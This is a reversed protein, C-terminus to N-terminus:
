EPLFLKKNGIEVNYKDYEKTTEDVMGFPCLCNHERNLKRYSKEEAPYEAYVWGNAIHFRNWRLHELAQYEAPSREEKGEFAYYNLAYRRVCRNSQKKFPTEKRWADKHKTDGKVKTLYLGGTSSLEDYLAKRGEADAASIEGYVFSFLSDDEDDILDNYAWINKNCGFPIVRLVTGLRRKDAKSWSLRDVNKKDRIHVFITKMTEARETKSLLDHKFEDILLNAMSLDREDDGLSVVYARYQVKDSDINMGDDMARMFCKKFCSVEHFHVIPFGMENYIREPTLRYKAVAGGDYLSHLASSRQARGWEVLAENSRPEDAEATKCLFFPHAYAFEGSRSLADEDYVDAIFQTAGGDEKVNASHIFLEKLAYQGVKGFGMVAVRYVDTGKDLGMCKEYLPYNEAFDREGRFFDKQTATLLDDAMLKAENVFHLQLYKKYEEEFAEVKGQKKAFRGVVDDLKRQYHEYDTDNRTLLYYNIVTPIGTGDKGCYDRLVARIDDFVIDSNHNEMGRLEEDERTAFIHVRKHYDRHTRDLADQKAFYEKSCRLKKVLSVEQSKKLKKQYSWYYFGHDVITRYVDTSKDLPELEDGTFIVAYKGEKRKREERHIEMAILLSAESLDTFIYYRDFKRMFGALKFYSYWEYSIKISIVLLFVIGVYTIAGYYLTGNLLSSFDTIDYSGEFAVGGFLSYVVSMWIAPIKWIQDSAGFIEWVTPDMRLIALFRVVAGLLLAGGFVILENLLKRHPYKNRLNVYAVLTGLVALGFVIIVLAFIGWSLLETM